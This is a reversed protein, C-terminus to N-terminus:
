IHILSLGKLSIPISNRSDNLDNRLYRIRPANRNSIFLDLDGDQDWDVSAVARGDDPFDVGSLFSIDSFKGKKGTNLYFCNKEQGSFSRGQEIMKSLQSHPVSNTKKRDASSDFTQPM